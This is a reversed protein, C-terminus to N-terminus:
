RTKAERISNVSILVRTRHHGTNAHFLTGTVIAHKGMLRRVTKWDAEHMIVLQMERIDDEADEYADRNTCAPKTLTLIIATEKRDGRKISEYNPPGAFIQSRLTGAFSVAPGTPEYDFCKQASASVCFIFFLISFAVSDRIILHSRLKIIAMRM